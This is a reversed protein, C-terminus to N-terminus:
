QVAVNSMYIKQFKKYMHTDIHISTKHRYTGVPFSPIDCTQDFILCPLAHIKLLIKSYTTSKICSKVNKLQATLSCHDLSWTVVGELLTSVGM